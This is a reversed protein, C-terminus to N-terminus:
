WPRSAGLVFTPVSSRQAVDVTRFPIDAERVRRRAEDAALGLLENRQLFDRSAQVRTEARLRAQKMVETEREADVLFAQM